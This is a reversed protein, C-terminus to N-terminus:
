QNCRCYRDQGLNVDRCHRDRRMSSRDAFFQAVFRRRIMSVLHYVSGDVLSRTTRKDLPTDMDIFGASVLFVIPSNSNNINDHNTTTTLLVFIVQLVVLSQFSSICLSKFTNTASKTLTTSFLLNQHHQRNRRRYQRCMRGREERRRHQQAQLAEALATSDDEM